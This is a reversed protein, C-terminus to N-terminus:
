VLAVETFFGAFCQSDSIVDIDELWVPECLIFSM